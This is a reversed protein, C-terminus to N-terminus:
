PDAVTGDAGQSELTPFHHFPAFDLYGFYYNVMTLWVKLNQETLRGGVSARKPPSSGNAVAKREEEDEQRHLDRLDADSDREWIGPSTVDVDAMDRDRMMCEICVEEPLGVPQAQQAAQLPAVFVPYPTQFAYPRRSTPQAANFDQNGAQPLVASNDSTADAVGPQSQPQAQNQIPEYQRPPVQQGMALPDALSVPRASPSPVTPYRSQGAGEYDAIELRSFSGLHLGHTPRTKATTAAAM